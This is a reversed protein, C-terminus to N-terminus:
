EKELRKQLCDECVGLDVLYEFYRGCDCCQVKDM